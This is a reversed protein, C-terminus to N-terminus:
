LAVMWSNGREGCLERYEKRCQRLENRANIQAIIIRNTYSPDSVCELCESMGDVTIELARIQIRLVARRILNM